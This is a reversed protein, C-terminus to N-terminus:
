AALAQPSCRYVGTYVDTALDSQGQDFGLRGIRFIRGGGREGAYLSSEAM